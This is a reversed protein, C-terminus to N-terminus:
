ATLIIRQLIDKFLEGQESLERFTEHPVQHQWLSIYIAICWNLDANCTPSLPKHSCRIHYTTHIHEKLILNNHEAEPVHEQANALNTMFTWGSDQLVQLVPKFQCDACVQMVQFGAWQYLKLVSEVLSAISPTTHDAVWMATCYKINKSITTLFPMGNVYMIDIYLCVDHQTDCLKHPYIGCQKSAQTPMM